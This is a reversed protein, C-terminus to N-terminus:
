GARAKATNTRDPIGPLIGNIPALLFPVSEWVLDLLGSQHVVLASGM